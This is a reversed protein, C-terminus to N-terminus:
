YSTRFDITTGWAGARRGIAILPKSFFINKILIAGLEAISLARRLASDAKPVGMEAWVMGLNYYCMAVHPDEEPGNAVLVKIADEFSLFLLM